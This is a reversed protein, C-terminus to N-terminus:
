RIFTFDARGSAADGNWPWLPFTRRPSTQMRVRIYYDANRELPTATSLEVRDFNTVWARVQAAEQTRDSWFVRGDKLKSVQYVGTLNDYKVSAAVTSTGLLPDLWVSSPRRLELTFTFTLLLGSQMVDQVDGDFAAPATFSASVQGDSVVPTVHITEIAAALVAGLVVWAIAVWPARTTM